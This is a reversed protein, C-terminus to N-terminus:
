LPPNTNTQEAMILEIRFITILQLFLKMSRVLYNFYSMSQTPGSGGKGAEYSIIQTKSNLQFAGHHSANRVQNDWEECLASFAINMHFPNNRGPKDLKLYQKLTLKEFKNFDRGAKINNLYALIDVSSALAEFTNGYFMKVEDFNCSMTQLSDDIDSGSLTHLHVQSFETWGKFFANMVEFYRERRSERMNSDYYAMLEVYQPHGMLPRIEDFAAKLKKEYVRGSLDMTLRWIWDPLDTLPEAPHFEASGREVQKRSLKGKDNRHLRWAKKLKEWEDKYRPRRSTQSMVTGIDYAGPGEPLDAEDLSKVAMIMQELHPFAMDTNKQGSPFAFNAHLNVITTLNPDLFTKSHEVMEANEVAETYFFSQEVQDAVMAVKIEEECNACPFTHIHRAEFGLGIRLTHVHDCTLCKFHSRVIM